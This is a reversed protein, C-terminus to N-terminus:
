IISSQNNIQACDLLITLNKFTENILFFMEIVLASALIKRCAWWIMWYIAAGKDSLSMSPEYSSTYSDILYFLIFFFGKILASQKKKKKSLKRAKIIRYSLWFFNQRLTLAFRHLSVILYIGVHIDIVLRLVQM